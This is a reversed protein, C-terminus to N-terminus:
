IALITQLIRVAKPNAEGVKIRDEDLYTVDGGEDESEYCENFDPDNRDIKRFDNYNNHAEFDSSTSVSSSVDKRSDDFTM